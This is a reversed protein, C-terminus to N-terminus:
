CEARGPQTLEDDMSMANLIRLIGVDGYLPALSCVGRGGGGRITTTSVGLPIASGVILRM